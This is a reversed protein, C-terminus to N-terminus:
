NRNHGGQGQQKHRGCNGASMAHDMTETHYRDLDTASLTVSGNVGIRVSQLIPKPSKRPATNAIRALVQALEWRDSHITATTM